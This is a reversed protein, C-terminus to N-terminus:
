TSLQHVVIRILEIKLFENLYRKQYLKKKPIKTQQTFFITVMKYCVTDVILM